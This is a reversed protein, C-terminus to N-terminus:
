LIRIAAQQRAFALYEYHINNEVVFEQWARYEGNIWNPFGLYEDFIVITNAAIRKRLLNLLLRTSEFTDADFHVFSFSERHENLFEPITVDFWGKVLRVNEMVKPLKGELTLAGKITQTGPWDEKLGEFSDFGHIIKGHRGIVRAFHNISTGSYVGFEAFLGEYHVKTLAYDWLTEKYNFLMARFIHREVYDASSEAARDWLINFVNQAPPPSPANTKVYRLLHVLPTLAVIGIRKISRKVISFM